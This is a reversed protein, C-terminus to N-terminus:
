RIRLAIDKNSYIKIKQNRRAKLLEYKLKNVVIHQSHKLCFVIFLQGVHNIENAFVEKQTRLNSGQIYIYIYIDRDVTANM